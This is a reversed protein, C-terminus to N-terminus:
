GANYSACIVTGPELKPDAVGIKTVTVQDPSDAWPGYNGGWDGYKGPYIKRAEAESVACVVASDYTDYGDNEDQELKWLYKLGGNQLYELVEEIENVPMYAAVSSRGGDEFATVHPMDPFQKPPVVWEHEEDFIAVEFSEYEDPQLGNVRPRSYHTKSAQISVFYKGVELQKFFMYSEPDRQLLHLFKM